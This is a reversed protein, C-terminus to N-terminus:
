MNSQIYKHSNFCTPNLGLQNPFYDCLLREHLTSNFMEKLPLMRLPQTRLEIPSPIYTFRTTKSNARHLISPSKTGIATFFSM